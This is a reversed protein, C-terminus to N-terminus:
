MDGMGAPPSGAPLGGAPMSPPQAGPAAPAPADPAMGDDGMGGMKMGSAAGPMAGGSPAPAMSGKTMPAGAAAPNMAASGLAVVAKQQVADLIAVASGVARVYDMRQQAGLRGISTIKADIEAADPREASTLTWMANEAEEIKRQTESYAREAKEKIATLRRRQEDTLGIARGQELFFGEAGLHYLHPAGPAPPLAGPANSAPPQGLLATRGPTTVTNAMTMAPDTAPSAPDSM